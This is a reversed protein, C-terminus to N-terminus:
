WRGNPVFDRDFSDGRKFRKINGELMMFNETDSHVYNPSRDNPTTAMNTYNTHAYNTYFGPDVYANNSEEKYRKPYMLVSGSKIKDIRNSYRNGDNFWWGGTLEPEPGSSYGECTGGYSPAYKNPVTFKVSPCILVGTKEEVVVPIGGLYSSLKDFICGRFSDGAQYNPLYGGFDDTYVYAVTFIQKLNNMCLVARASERAKGLAPLLIAMLLSIISIVVLLEILTFRTSVNINNRPSKM